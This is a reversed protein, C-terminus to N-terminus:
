RGLEVSGSKLEDGGGCAAVPLTLCATVLLWIGKRM